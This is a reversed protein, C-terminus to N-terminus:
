RRELTRSTEGVSRQLELQGSIIGAMAANGIM